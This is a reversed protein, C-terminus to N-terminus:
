RGELDEMMPRIHKEYCEPCIGHSFEVDSHTSIYAEVQHWYQRDDRIKKCYSCIPLIGRLVRVDDLAKRLDHMKEALAAQLEVMRKGVALRARLEDNHYPKLIYDNAGTDLGLVVDEKESRSTLLLIYPPESTEMRRIRRCAELGDVEPMIWDLIVLKPHDPEQMAQWAQAGDAAMIPDFGWKKLVASLMLRSTSDDEAVLVKM